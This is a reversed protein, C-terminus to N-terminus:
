ELIGGERNFLEFKIDKVSYYARGTDGMRGSVDVIVSESRTWKSNVQSSTLIPEQLPDYTTPFPLQLFRFTPFDSIPFNGNSNSLDLCIEESTPLNRQLQFTRASTPSKFHVQFTTVLTPFHWQVQFSWFRFYLLPRDSLTLSSSELKMTELKM